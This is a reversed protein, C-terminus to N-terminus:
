LSMGGELPIVTGTMYAAASSALFVALGAKAAAYAYTERPGIRIGGVSGINIVTAPREPRAQARLLPLAKQTLFFCCKLNLDVTSDWSDEPYDDLPADCITGANNVLIDLHAEHAALDAILATIGDLSAVDGPLAVIDGGTEARIAAVATDLRDATRACAYVRAGPDPM